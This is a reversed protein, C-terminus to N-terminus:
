VVYNGFVDNMLNYAEPLIESFILEKEEPTTVDYKQQIFRSGYQDMACEVVHDKLDKIEIKKQNQIKQRLEELFESKAPQPNQQNYVQMMKKETNFKQKPFSNRSYGMQQMKNAGGMM